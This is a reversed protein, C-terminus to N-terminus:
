GGPAVTWWNPEPSQKGLKPCLPADKSFGSTLAFDIVMQGSENRRLGEVVVTGSAGTTPSFEVVLPLSFPLVLDGFRPRAKLEYRGGTSGKFVFPEGVALGHTAPETGLQSNTFQIDDLSWGFSPQTQSFFRAGEVPEVFFRFRVRLDVGVWAALSVSRALYSGTPTVSIGRGREQSLATWQLGNTSVEVSAIQNTTTYGLFSKFRIESGVSPRVIPKFELIQDL